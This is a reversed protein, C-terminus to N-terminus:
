PHRRPVATIMPGLRVRETRLAMAALVVRPDSGPSAPIRETEIAICDPVFVGDWGATEAERALEAVARADGGPIVFGYRM